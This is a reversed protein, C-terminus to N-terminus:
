AVRDAAGLEGFSLGIRGNPQSHVVLSRARVSHGSPLNFRVWLERELRVPCAVRMGGLSLDETVGLALMMGSRLEVPMAVRVRPHRREAYPTRTDPVLM